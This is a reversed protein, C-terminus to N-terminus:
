HYTRADIIRQRLARYHRRLRRIIVTLLAIGPPLAALLLPVLLLARYDDLMRAANEWYPYAIHDSVMSRLGFDGLIAFSAALSYRDSNEIVTAKAFATYESVTKVAFGSIPDPMILEYCTIAATEDLKALTSYTMFAGAGATYAKGSFYDDERAVVGAVQYPAGKITVTMGAVDVAGFLKWALEEDLLLRDYNIDEDSLYSGSRLRLPHFLFFDGGVGIVEAEASTGDGAITLTGQGSYADAWYSGTELPELSASLLTDDLSDRFSYVSSETFGGDPPLFCSVQAFRMENEGRWREAAQQSLLKEGLAGRAILAALFLLTFALFLSFRLVRRRTLYAKRAQKDRLTAMVKQKFKHM